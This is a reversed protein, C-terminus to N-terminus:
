FVFNNFSIAGFLANVEGLAGSPALGVPLQAVLQLGQEITTPTTPAVTVGNADLLLRGTPNDYIYIPRGFNGFPANTGVTATAANAVALPTPIVGPVTVVAVDIQNNEAAVRLTTGATAGGNAFNNAAGGVLLNIRDGQALNFDVITDAVTTSNQFVLNLTDAGSGGAIQNAGLGGTIVDNGAGGDITDAGATGVIVDNGTVGAPSAFTIPGAGTFTVNVGGPAGPAITVLPVIGGPLTVAENTAIEIVEINNFRNATVAGAEAPIDIGAPRPAQAPDAYNGSGIIRVVDRSFDTNNESIITNPGSVIYLDNGPGGFLLDGDTNQLIDDGAGGVLIDIGPGGTLLDNGDGGLLIDNGAAGNLQDNGAGGALINNGSNGTLVDNGSGGTIAEFESIVDVDANGANTANATFGPEPLTVTVGADFDAYSVTDFGTGGVLTDSGANGQISDNGAGGYITDNGENGFITDDGDDGEIYDNGANGQISDNGNDGNITDNGDGGFLTDAGDNGRISDNGTGGYITDNGGDGSLTDNGSGGFIVDDGGGGSVSDNGPGADIFDPGENSSGTGDGFIVDNGTQSPELASDGYLVDTVTTLSITAGAFPGNDPSVPANVAVAAVGGRGFITDDGANGFVTDNGSAANISDNGALGAIVDNGQTGVITDNNVSPFPIGDPAFDADLRTGIIGTRSLDINRGQRADVTFRFSNNNNPNVVALGPTATNIIQGNVELDESGVALFDLININNITITQAANQNTTTSAGLGDPSTTGAITIRVNAGVQEITVTSGLDLAVLKVIDGTGPGAAFDTIVDAGGYGGETVTVQNAGAINGFVPREFTLNFTKVVEPQFVFQDNGRGGTMTNNGRSGVLTDNGAPVSSDPDPDAGGNMTAGGYILDAGLDGNATGEAGYITDNAQGGYVTSNGFGIVLDDGKNGNVIMGGATAVVTDNGQGGYVRDAGFRGIVLDQGENGNLTDLGEGGLITDNGALGRIEDGDNGATLFDGAATGLILAM